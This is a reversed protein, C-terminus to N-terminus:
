RPKRRERLVAVLIAVIVVASGLAELLGPREVLFAVGIVVLVVSFVVLRLQQRRM